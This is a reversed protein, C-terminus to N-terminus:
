EGEEKVSSSSKDKTKPKSPAWIYFVAFPISIIAVIIGQEATIFSIKIFVVLMGFAIIIGILKGIM